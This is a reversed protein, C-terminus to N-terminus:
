RCVPLCKPRCRDGSSALKFRSSRVPSTPASSALSLIRQVERKEAESMSDTMVHRLRRGYIREALQPAHARFLDGDTGFNLFHDFTWTPGRRFWRGAKPGIGIWNIKGAIGCTRPEYGLGGIGIVADFKRRRIAGMCDKIGFCGIPGPDDDHTRKYVLVRM